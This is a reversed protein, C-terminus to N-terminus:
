PAARASIGPTGCRTDGVVTCVPYVALAPAGDVTANGTRAGKYAISFLPPGIWAPRVLSEIVPVFADVIYARELILWRVHYDAAVQRIVDLSDTTTMVGGHGTLYKWGGPDASLILDSKPAQATDLAQSALLRNDRYTNWNPLSLAAYAGANLIVSLTAALLFLRAAGAETWTPRHGAAWKSAAIAGELSLIFTFPVLAVASHLFTGYPVHVAFLLASAAFLVAAYAFFPGFDLSRRRAWGGIL